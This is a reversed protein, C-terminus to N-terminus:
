KLGEKEEKVVELEDKLMKEEQELAEKTPQANRGRWFGWGRGCCRRCCGGFGRGRALSDGCPGSGRGTM